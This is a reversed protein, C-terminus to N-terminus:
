PRFKCRSFWNKRAMEWDPRLSSKIQPQPMRSLPPRASQLLRLRHSYDAPQSSHRLKRGIAAPDSNPTAAVFVKM